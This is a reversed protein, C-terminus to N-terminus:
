NSLNFLDRVHPPLQDILSVLDKRWNRIDAITPDPLNKPEIEEGDSCLFMRKTSGNRFTYKVYGRYVSDTSFYSSRPDSSFRACERTLEPRKNDKRKTYTVLVGIDRKGGAEYGSVRLKGLEYKETTKKLSPKIM